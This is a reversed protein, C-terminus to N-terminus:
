AEVPFPFKEVDEVVSALATFHFTSGKGVVSEAWIRGRLLPVLQACIALGLGTGGYRRVASGDAQRFAEFIHGLKEAPIGIGTDVVRFEVTLQDSNRSGSDVEILVGGKPTFKVANGVLHGLIQDIRRRDAVIRRPVGASARWALEIGREKALPTFRAAFDGLMSRVEFPRADIAVRGTELSELDLLDEILALLSRAASKVQALCSRQDPSLEGYLLLDTFGIIANMPTRFEHSVNSLIERKLSLAAELDQNARELEATRAEVEQELTNAYEREQARLREHVRYTSEISSEHELELARINNELQRVRRAGREARAFELRRGLASDLSFALLSSVSGSASPVTGAITFGAEALHWAFLTEGGKEEAQTVGPRQRARDVVPGLGEPAPPAPGREAPLPEIRAAPLARALDAAIGLVLRKADDENALPGADRRTAM